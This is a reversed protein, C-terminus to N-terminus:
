QGVVVELLLSQVCSPAHSVTGHLLLSPVCPNASNRDLYCGWTCPMPHAPLMSLGQGPRGPGPSDTTHRNEGFRCGECSKRCEDLAWQKGAGAMQSLGRLM